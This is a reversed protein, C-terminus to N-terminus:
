TGCAYDQKSDDEEWFLSTNRSKQEEFWRPRDHTSRRNM